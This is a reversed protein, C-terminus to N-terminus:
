VAVQVNMICKHITFLFVSAMQHVMLTDSTDVHDNCSIELTEYIKFAHQKYNVSTKVFLQIFSYDNIKFHPSNIHM